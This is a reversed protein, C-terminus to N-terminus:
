LCKCIKSTNIGGCGSSSVAVGAREGVRRAVPGVEPGVGEGIIIEGVDPLSRVRRTQSHVRTDFDM